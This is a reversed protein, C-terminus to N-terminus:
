SPPPSPPSDKKKEADPEAGKQGPLPPPAVREPAAQPTTSIEAEPEAPPKEAGKAPAGREGALGERIGTPAAPATVELPVERVMVNVIASKRLGEIYAEYERNARDQGLRKKIDDKVEEFPTTHGERAEVLKLVLFSGGV